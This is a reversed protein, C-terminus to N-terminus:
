ATPRERLWRALDMVPVKAGVHRLMNLAQARHHTGHHCLQLMTVGLPFVRVVNPRPTAQVTRKPDSNGLLSDRHAATEQFLSGLLGISIPDDGKPFLRGPGKTWNELWWAEADHIHVMTKRLTAQGIEFPRDLQVDTLNSAEALVRANAWDGYAFYTRLTDVDLECPTANPAELKMFIYDAGPPPLPKGIRRLMNVAQARHHSGHNSLHLITGGLPLTLTEGRLNTYTLPRPLDTDSQGEVFANREGALDHFESGLQSISVGAADTRYRPPPQNKWRDLWVREASWLHNLTARLSGEGMDFKHDLQADSLSGAASVLKGRAWDAFAFLERLTGLHVM